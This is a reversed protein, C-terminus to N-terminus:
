SAVLRGDLEVVGTIRRYEDGVVVPTSWATGDASSWIAPLTTGYDGSEESGSAVIGRSTSSLRIGGALAFRDTDLRTWTGAATGRWIASGHTDAGVALLGDGIPTVDGLSGAGAPDRLAAGNGAEPLWAIAPPGAPAPSPSAGVALSASPTAGVPTSPSAAASGATLVPTQTAPLEAPASM